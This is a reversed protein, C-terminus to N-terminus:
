NPYSQMAESAKEWLSPFYFVRHNQLKHQVSRDRVMCLLTYAIKQIVNLALKRLEWFNEIRM